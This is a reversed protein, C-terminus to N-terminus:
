EPLNWLRVTGDAGGSVATRGDPAFAVGRVEGVHGRFCDVEQGRVLDWLRMTGDAGGSLARRDDPAVALALVSDTHGIFRAAERGSKVDWARVIRDGGGSLVHSGDPSVALCAIPQSGPLAMCRLQRGNAVDWLRITKDLSGSVAWDGHPLFAVSVVWDTHGPLRRIEKGTVVDWLRLKGDYLSGCLARRGDPGFAVCRNTQKDFCRVERGADVDWLRVTQDTSSSLARDGRPSFALGCVLNKHGPLCRLERRTGVDWLRVTADAGGSLVRVGDPSYAVCAVADAHGELRHIEHSGPQRHHGAPPAVPQQHQVHGPGLPSLTKMPRAPLVVASSKEDGTGGVSLETLRRVIDDFCQPREDPQDALCPELLDALEEPVERWHKRLPHTTGFLAFCCTKGFGYVDSAASVAVGPLKGLQEPAAYDLTGAIASGSAATTRLSRTAMSHQLVSQRLALGFDIVKVKWRHQDHRVLVNAPKVDRHLIGRAHAASLGDAVLKAVNILDDPSLPKHGTVHDALTGGEFYDMVLYARTRAADAFDCDRVRIIAPHEIEELVQAERFLDQVSRDLGDTRLAKVVVRSESHRNRCLVAVGFGGAGLVRLPEFKALPFPAFRTPDLDAARVMAVLAAPWDQRELASRFLNHQAEAEAAPSEVLEAVKAFDRQAAAFDGAVVELKGVANLLAPAHKRESEPLARYRGVLEAVLAREGEDRLALSDTPRLARRDLQHAQLANLVAAGLERIQESQKALESKIDLVGAHTEAVVERVGGLMEELRDGVADLAEHLAAFGTEQARGIQDLQAFALGQFLTQDSEVQRRFFYRVAVTLLPMGDPSSRSVCDALRAHGADRLDVSVEVLLQHEAKLLATPDSFRALPGLKRALELPKIEGPDFLNAKRAARLEKACASRFDPGADAHDRAHDLFLRLQQRFARDEAKDLRTVLSEGDLAIELARWARTNSHRLALGLRQSQDTFREGLFKVVPEIADDAAHFGVAKCAGQLASGLALVSLNQLSAM